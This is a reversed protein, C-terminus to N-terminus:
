VIVGIMEYHGFASLGELSYLKTTLFHLRSNKHRAKKHVASLFGNYQRNHITFSVPIDTMPLFNLFQLLAM